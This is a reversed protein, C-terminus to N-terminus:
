INVEKLANIFENVLDVSYRNSPNRRDNTLIVLLEEEYKNIDKRYYKMTLEGQLKWMIYICYSEDLLDEFSTHPKYSNYFCHIVNKQENSLQRAPTFYINEKM